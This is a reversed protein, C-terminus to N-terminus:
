FDSVAITVVEKWLKRVLLLGTSPMLPACSNRLIADAHYHTTDKVQNCNSIYTDQHFMYDNDAGVATCQDQMYGLQPPWVDFFIAADNFLHAENVFPKVQLCM